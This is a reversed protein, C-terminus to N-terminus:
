EINMGVINTSQPGVKSVLSFGEYKTCFLNKKKFISLDQIQAVKRSSM